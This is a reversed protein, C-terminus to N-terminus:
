SVVLHTRITKQLDQLSTQPKYLVAVVGFDQMLAKQVVAMRNPPVLTHVIVPVDQWEAYSRFEHLFAVGNHEVLQLELIVMDPLKSDVADIAAQASAAVLVEYDLSRLFREYVSALSANPEILLITKM